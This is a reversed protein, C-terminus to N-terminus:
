DLLSKHLRPSGYARKRGVRIVKMAAILMADDQDRQSPKRNVWAHYGAKSVGLVKCM